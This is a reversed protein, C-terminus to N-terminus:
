MGEPPRRRRKTEGRQKKEDIRRQVAGRSPKTPKRTKPRVLARAVLERLRDLCADRNRKQSRHEDSTIVLEDGAMRSPGALDELRKAAGAPLNLEAVSVRLQAKTARKNVNQGGPGPSPVFTFRLASKAVVVRGAIQVGDPEPQQDAGSM